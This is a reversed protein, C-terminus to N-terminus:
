EHSRQRLKEKLQANEQKVKTLNSKLEVYDTFMATVHDSLAEQMHQAMNKRKVKVECGVEAFKCNIVSEPCKDKMHSDVTFRRLTLYPKCSNPCRTPWKPCERYHDTVVDHYTLSPAFLSQFYNSGLIMERIKCCPCAERRLLCLSSEHIKLFKRPLVKKCESNQCKEGECDCDTELHQAVRGFSGVWDCGFQYNPCHMTAGSIRRQTKPDVVIGLPAKRCQPCSNNRKKWKNACGLCITNGCCSTQHVTDALEHCIICKVEDLKEKM